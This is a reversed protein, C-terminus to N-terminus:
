QRVTVPWNLTVSGASTRVVAQLMLPYGVAAKPYMLNDHWLGNKVPHVAPRDTGVVTGGFVFQIKVTGSLPHGSADSVRVSYPWNKGVTPNHDAGHLTAHVPGTTVTAGGSATTATPSTTSVSRSKSSSGCATVGTLLLAAVM